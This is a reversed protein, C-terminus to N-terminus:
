QWEAIPMSTQASGMFNERGEFIKAEIMAEKQAGWALNTLGLVQIKLTLHFYENANVRTFLGIPSNPNSTMGYNLPTGAAIDTISGFKAFSVVNGYFGHNKLEISVDKAATSTNKVGVSYTLVNGVAVKRILPDEGAASKLDGTGFPKDEKLLKPDAGNGKEDVFTLYGSEQVLPLVQSYLTQISTTNTPLTGSYVVAILAPNDRVQTIPGIQGIQSQTIRWSGGRRIDRQGNYIRRYTVGDITASDNDIGSGWVNSIGIWVKINNLDVWYNNKVALIVWRVANQSVKNNTRFVAANDSMKFLTFYVPATANSGPPYTLNPNIAGRTTVAAGLQVKGSQVGYLIGVNLVLLLVFVSVLLAITRKSM